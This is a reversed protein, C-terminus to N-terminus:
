AERDKVMTCQSRIATLIDTQKSSELLEKQIPETPLASISQHVGKGKPSIRSTSGQAVVYYSGGGEDAYRALQQLKKNSRSLNLNNNGRATTTIQTRGGGTSGTYDRLEATFTDNLDSMNPALLTFSVTKITKHSEIFDWFTSKPRIPNIELTLNMSQLRKQLISTIIKSATNAGLDRCGSIGITQVHEDTDIAVWVFPQHRQKKRQYNETYTINTNKQCTFLFQGADAKTCSEQRVHYADDTVDHMEKLIDRLINLKNEMLKDPTDIFVPKKALEVTFTQFPTATAITLQFRYLYFSQVTESNLTDNM